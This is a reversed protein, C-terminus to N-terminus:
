NKASTCNECVNAMDCKNYLYVVSYYLLHSLTSPDIKTVAERWFLQVTEPQLKTCLDSIFCLIKKDRTDTGTSYFSGNYTEMTSLLIFSRAYVQKNYLSLFFKSPTYFWYTKEGDM